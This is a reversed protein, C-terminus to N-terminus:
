DSSQKSSQTESLEASLMHHLLIDVNRSRSKFGVLRRRNSGEPTVKGEEPENGTELEMEAFFAELVFALVLNLLLLVTLLYFSIFYALTWSTGTLDKYSPEEVQLPQAEEKIEDREILGSSRWLSSTGQLRPGRFQRRSPHKLLLYIQFESWCSCLTM